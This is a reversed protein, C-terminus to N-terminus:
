LAMPTDALISAIRLGELAAYLVKELEARAYQNTPDLEVAKRLEVMAPTLLGAERYDKAKEFHFVSANIKARMLAARYRLDGPSQRSLELYELVAQDWDGTQEAVQARRFSSYGSCGALSLAALCLVASLRKLRGNARASSNPKHLHTM